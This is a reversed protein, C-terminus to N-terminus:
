DMIGCLLHLASRELEVKYAQSVWAGILLVQDVTSARPSVPGM